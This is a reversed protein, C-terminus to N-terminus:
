WGGPRPRDPVPQRGARGEAPRHDPGAPEGGLSRRQRALQLVLAGVCLAILLSIPVLLWWAATINQQLSSRPAIVVLQYEPSQTPMRYILQTGTSILTQSSTNSWDPTPPWPQDAGLVPIAKLGNNLVVLLSAQAPLDVVDTLHGRSTSVRFDGRGLVLAALNDDPQASTNLWYDYAPGRIDPARPPALMSPRSWSSCVQGDGVYAAEYIFRYSFIVQRLREVLQPTCQRLPQAELQDLGARLQAFLQELRILFRSGQANMQESENQRAQHVALGASACLLLVASLLAASLALPLPRCFLTRLSAANFM